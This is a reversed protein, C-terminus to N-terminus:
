KHLGKIKEIETSKPESKERIKGSYGRAKIPFSQSPVITNFNGPFLGINLSEVKQTLPDNVEPKNLPPEISKGRVKEFVSLDISPASGNEAKIMALEYHLKRLKEEKTNIEGTINDFKRQM